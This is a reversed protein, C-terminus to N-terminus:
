TTTTVLTLLDAEVQEALATFGVLDAILVTVERRTPVDIGVVDGRVIHETVARPVYRRITERSRRLEQQQADIIQDKCFTRRDVIEIVLCVLLCGLYAIWQAAGLAGAEVGDLDGADWSRWLQYTGYSVYPTVATAAAGPPIRFIAFGFFMVVILGATMVGARDVTSRSSLVVDSLLWVILFGAACNAAAALPMVTSRLQVPITLATLVSLLVIWGGIWGASRSAADPDLVLVAVLLLLWSPTSGIYGIRAFPTATGVRWRRYALETDRQAFRLGLLRSAHAAHGTAQLPGHM